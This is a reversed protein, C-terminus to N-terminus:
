RDEWSNSCSELLPPSARLRGPVSVSVQAGPLTHWLGQSLERLAAARVCSSRPAARLPEPPPEASPAACCQSCSPPALPLPETRFPSCPGPVALPRCLCLSRQPPQVDQLMIGIACAQSCLTGPVCGLIWREGWSLFLSPPCLVALVSKGCSLRWSLLDAARGLLM